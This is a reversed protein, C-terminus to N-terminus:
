DLRHEPDLSSVPQANPLTTHMNAAGFKGRLGSEKPHIPGKKIRDVYVLM